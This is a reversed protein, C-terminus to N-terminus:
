YRAPKCYTHCLNSVQSFNYDLFCNTKEILNKM